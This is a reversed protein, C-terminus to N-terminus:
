KLLLMKRTEVREGARLEALYVGSALGSGDFLVEHSGAPRPGDVLERVLRGALDFVRLSVEQPTSLEYSLTTTPNFPNPTNPLLAFTAPKQVPEPDISSPIDDRIVLLGVDGLSLFVTNNLAALSSVTHLLRQYGIVDLATPDDADVVLLGESSDVIYVRTGVVAIQYVFGSTDLSALEVPSNPDSVDYIILGASGDAILLRDGQIVLDTVDGPTEIPDLEQPHNIDSIDM